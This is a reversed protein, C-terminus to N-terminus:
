IGSVEVWFKVWSKLKTSDRNTVLMCLRHPVLTSTPRVKLGLRKVLRSNIIVLDSGQDVNIHFDPLGYKIEKDSKWITTKLHFAEGKSKLIKALEQKPIQLLVHNTDVVKGPQHIDAYNIEEEEEISIASPVVKKKRPKGPVTM